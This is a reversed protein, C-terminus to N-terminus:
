KSSKPYVAATIKQDDIAKTERKRNSVILVSLANLANSGTEDDLLKSTWFWIEEPMANEVYRAFKLIEDSTEAQAILAAALGIRYATEYADPSSEELTIHFTKKYRRTPFTERARELMHRIALIGSGKARGIVFAPKRKESETHPFRHYAEVSVTEPQSRRWKIIYRFPM